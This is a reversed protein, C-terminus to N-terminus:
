RPRRRRRSQTALTAVAVGVLVAATGYHWLPRPWRPQEGPRTVVLIAGDWHRGFSRLATRESSRPPRVLTVEDAADMWAVVFHNGDVHAIGPTRATLRHLDGLGLRYARAELGLAEAAKALGAMSAGTEDTGALEALQRVDAEAGLWRACFTLCLPGCLKDLKQRASAAEARPCPGGILCCALLLLACLICMAARGSPEGGAPHGTRTM